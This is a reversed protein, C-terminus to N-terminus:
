LPTSFTITSGKPENQIQIIDHMSRIYYIKSNSTKRVCVKGDKCWIFQFSKSLQTKANYLITKVHKTLAERVFIRGDAEEKPIDPMLLGKTLCKEKGADIWQRRASKTKMEVLIAGPKEKTGPLRQSSQIDSKDMDLKTAVTELIKGVESPPVDPLGAIELSASLTKQEFNNMGQELVTMRLELNKNKNQLDQNKNELNKIVADQKKISVDMTSIQDSLYELSSELNRIEERFTKKLERSIDQVLKRTDITQASVVGASTGSESEEDDDDDPTM